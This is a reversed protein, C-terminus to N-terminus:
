VDNCIPLYYEFRYSDDNNKYIVELDYTNRKQLGYFPLANMYINNIFQIYNKINGSYEFRAY